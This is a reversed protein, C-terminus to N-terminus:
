RPAVGQMLGGLGSAAIPLGGPMGAGPMATAGQMRMRALYQALQGGPLMGVPPSIAAAGPSQMALLSALNSHVAM